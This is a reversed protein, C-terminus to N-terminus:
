YSTNFRLHVLGWNNSNKGKFKKTEGFVGTQNKFTTLSDM